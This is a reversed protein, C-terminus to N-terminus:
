GAHLQFTDDTAFVGLAEMNLRQWRRAPDYQYVLRVSRSRAEHILQVLAAIASSNALELPRLDLLVVGNRPRATELAEAFYGPLIEAHHHDTARGKFVLRVDGTPEHIAADIDLDALRLDEMARLIAVLPARTM